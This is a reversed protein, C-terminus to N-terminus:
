ARPPVPHGSGSTLAVLGTAPFRRTGARETKGSTGRVRAFHKRRREGDLGLTFRNDPGEGISPMAGTGRRKAILVLALGIGLVAALITALRIRPDYVAVTVVAAVMGLGGIGEVRINAMNILSPSPPELRRSVFTPPTGKRNGAILLALVLGGLLGPVLIMFLPEM